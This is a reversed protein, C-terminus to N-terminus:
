GLPKIVIFAAGAPDNVVGLRGANPVDHWFVMEGGGKEVRRRTEDWDDTPFYVTWRPPIGWDREGKFVSGVGTDGIRFIILGEGTEGPRDYKHTFTVDWGFLAPYFDRADNPDFSLLELWSMTALRDQVAAGAHGRSEWLGFLAEERDAVVATRAVGPSDFPPAQVRGGLEQARAVTADVSPVNVYGLLRQPGMTLRMGIVNQGDLQFDFYPPNRAAFGGVDTSEPVPVAVWGFLDGYFRASADIDPTHLEAFCFTGHPHHM